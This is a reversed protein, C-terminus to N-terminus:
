AQNDRLWAILGATSADQTGAAEGKLERLIPGALQKGLEVGWQDFANINWVVSQVFVKHEYLAVLAGLTAPDLKRFLIVNSPKNGAFTRHPTLRDIEDAPKGAAAMEGRVEAATKGFALAKAQALVNSLLIQHHEGLPHHSQAPAIFDCPILQTGQHILQYFAHQGNTGPEGFVVPGTDYDVLNGDRDTSKGNSEMDLQQLFAPFRALSQDYPLVAHAKAGLFDGNWVGLLALLVPMNAAAPAEVFHRDMARAGALLACFNDMGVGVALTLGIASWMSYRGGVWDWFGFMNATDIGFKTVEAANTSVAVFHRAIDKEKAGSQLFWRRASHANTLTEQTTFTKSAIVFLTTEPDLWELTEALQTGDVNSVFHLAIEPNLYPALAGAAMAPGLDSGGIGINVVDTIVDGRFGKWTGERVADVFRTMQALVAHVAPVVNEGATEIVADAPARLAAHLVARGETTNIVDGAFMRGRMEAVGQQEALKFLLDLTEDTIRNKSYDLRLGAAEVVYRKARDPDAAFLDRLTQDAAAARHASLATWAPSVTLSSPSSTM